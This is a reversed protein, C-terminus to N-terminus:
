QNNLSTPNQICPGKRRQKHHELQFRSSELPNHAGGLSDYLWLRHLGHHIDLVSQTGEHLASRGHIVGEPTHHDMDEDLRPGHNCSHSHLELIGASGHWHVM